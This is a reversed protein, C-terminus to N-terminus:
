RSKAVSSPSSWSAAPSETVGADAGGRLAAAQLQLEDAAPSADVGLEDALRRRYSTLPRCRPPRIAPRPWRAAGAGACGGGAATRGSASGPGVRGSSRTPREGPGRVGCAGLRVSTGPPSGGRVSSGLIRLPGRRAAGRGRRGAGGSLGTRGASRLSRRLRRLDELYQDVDVTLWSDATLAYGGPGTLILDPRGVARRARNVLVQLNAAPDAPLRDPWLREALVDHPLFCGRRTSWSGCCPM